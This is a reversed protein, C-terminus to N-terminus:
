WVSNAVLTYAKCWWSLQEDEGVGVFYPELIGLGRIIGVIAIMTDSVSVNMIFM